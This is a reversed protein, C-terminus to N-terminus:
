TGPICGAMMQHAFGQLMIGRNLELELRPQTIRVIPAANAAAKARAADVGSDMERILERAGLLYAMLSSGTLEEIDIIYDPTSLRQARVSPSCHQNLKFVEARIDEVCQLYPREKATLLELWLDVFLSKIQEIVVSPAM